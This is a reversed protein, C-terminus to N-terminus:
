TQQASYCLNHQVVGSFPVCLNQNFAMKQLQITFVPSRLLKTKASIMLAFSKIRHVARYRRYLNEVYAM